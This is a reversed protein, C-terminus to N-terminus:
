ILKTIHPWLSNKKKESQVKPCSLKERQHEIQNWFSYIYLLYSLPIFKCISVANYQNQIITCSGKYRLRGAGSDFCGYFYYKIESRLWWQRTYLPLANKSRHKVEWAISQRWKTEFHWTVFIELIKPAKTGRSGAKALTKERRDATKFITSSFARPVLNRLWAKIKKLIRISIDYVTRLANSRSFEVHRLWTSKFKWTESLRLYLPVMSNCIKALNWFFPFMHNRGTIVSLKLSPTSYWMDCITERRNVIRHLSISRWDM